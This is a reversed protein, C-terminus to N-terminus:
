SSRGTPRGQRPTIDTVPRESNAILSLSTRITVPEFDSAVDALLVLATRALHRSTRVVAEDHRGESVLALIKAHDQGGLSTVLPRQVALQSVYRNSRRTAAMIQEQLRAPAGSTFTRHFRMHADMWEPSLAPQADAQMEALAMAAEGLKAEPLGPLTMRMGLAEFLLRAGYIADLDASDFRTVRSRQNRESEILGEEQLMRLAERLPTRSVGLAQSLQVQSLVTGAPITGAYMLTRLYHHVRVTAERPDDLELPVLDAYIDSM